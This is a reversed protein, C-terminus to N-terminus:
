DMGCIPCQGPEPLQIQPHMSCTWIQEKEAVPERTAHGEANRRAGTLRGLGFALVLLLVGVGIVKMSVKVKRVRMEKERLINVM